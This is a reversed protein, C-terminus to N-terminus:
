RLPVWVGGAFSGTVTGYIWCSATLSGPTINGRRSQAESIIYALFSDILDGSAANSPKNNGFLLSRNRGGFDLTPQRNPFTVM